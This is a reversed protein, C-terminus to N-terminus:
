TDFAAEGCKPCNGTAVAIDGQVRVLPNKCSICTLGLKEIRSRNIKKNLWASGLVPGFLLILFAWGWVDSISELYIPELYKLLILNLLLWSFVIGSFLYDTLKSRRKYLQRNKIFDEKNM